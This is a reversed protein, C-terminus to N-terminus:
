GHRESSTDSYHLEEDLQASSVGRFTLNIRPQTVRKRVPVSHDYKKQTTGSMVLIDGTQLPIKKYMKTEGQKYLVFDRTAGFSVSAISSKKKLDSEDDAHRGISSNGDPYLNCLVFNYTEGTVAEVINKVELLKDTWPLAEKVSGSYKYTLGTDGYACTMRSPERWEGFVFVKEHEFKLSKKFVKMYKSADNNSIARSYLRVIAGKENVITTRKTKTLQNLKPM